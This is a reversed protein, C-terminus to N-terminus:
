AAPGSDAFNGTLKGTLLSNPNPSPNSGPQTWWWANWNRVPTERDRVFLGLKAPRKRPETSPRATETARRLPWLTKKPRRDRADLFRKGSRPPLLLWLSPECAVSVPKCALSRSRGIGAHSPRVTLAAPRALISSSNASILSRPCM